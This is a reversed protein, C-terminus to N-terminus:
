FSSSSHDYFMSSTSKRGNAGSEIVPSTFDVFYGWTNSDTVGAAEDTDNRSQSLQKGKGEEILYSLGEYYRSSTLKAKTDVSSVTSMTPSHTTVLRSGSSDQSYRYGYYNHKSQPILDHRSLIRPMTEKCDVVPVPLQFSNVQIIYAGKM